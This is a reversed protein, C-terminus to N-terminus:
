AVTRLTWNDKAIFYTSHYILMEYLIYKMVRM